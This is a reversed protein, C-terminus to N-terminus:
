APQLMDDKVEEDLPLGTIPMLHRDLVWARNDLQLVPPLSPAFECFLLLPRAPEVVWEPEGDTPLPGLVTVPVGINAACRPDRVGIIIAMDGVKCKM